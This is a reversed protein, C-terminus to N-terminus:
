KRKFTLASTIGKKDTFTGELMKGTEDLSLTFTDLNWGTSIGHELLRYAVGTLQVTNGSIKVNLMEEVITLVGSKLYQIIMKSPMASSITVYLHAVRQRDCWTWEGQWTGSFRADVNSDKAKRDLGLCQFLRGLMRRYNAPNRFDACIHKEMFSPVACDQYLLPLMAFSLGDLGEDLLHALETRVWESGVSDATLIVALFIRGRLLGNLEGKVSKGIQRIDAEELWVTAGALSMAIALKRAIPKDNAHHVLFVNQAM